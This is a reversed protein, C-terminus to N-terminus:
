LLLLAFFFQPDHLLGQAEVANECLLSVLVRFEKKCPNKPVLPVVMQFDLNQFTLNLFLSVM